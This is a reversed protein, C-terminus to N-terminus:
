ETLKYAKVGNGFFTPILIIDENPIIGIDATQLNNEKTDYLSTAVGDKIHFIEGRWDSVVYNGATLKVV